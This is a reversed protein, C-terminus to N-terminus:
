RSIWLGRGRSRHSIWAEEEGEQRFGGVFVPWRVAPTEPGRDRVHRRVTNGERMRRLARKSPNFGAGLDPKRCFFGAFHGDIDFWCEV